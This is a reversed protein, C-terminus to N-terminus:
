RMQTWCIMLLVASTTVNDHLFSWLASWFREALSKARLLFILFFDFISFPLISPNSHSHIRFCFPFNSTKTQPLNGRGSETTRSTILASKGSVQLSSFRYNVACSLPCSTLIYRFVHQLPFNRRTPTYPPRKGTKAAAVRRACHGFLRKWSVALASRSSKLWIDDVMSNFSMILRNRGCPRAFFQFLPWSSVAAPM